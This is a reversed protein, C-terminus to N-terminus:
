DGGVLLLCHMLQSSVKCRQLHKFSGVTKAKNTETGTVTVIQLSPSVLPFCSHRLCQRHSHHSLHRHHHDDHDASIVDPWIDNNCLHWWAQWWGDGLQQWRGSITCGTATSQTPGHYYESNHPQSQTRDSLRAWVSWRVAPVTGAPVRCRASPAITVRGCIQCWLGSLM